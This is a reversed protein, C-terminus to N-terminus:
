GRIATKEGFQDVARQPHLAAQVPDDPLEVPSLGGSQFRRDPVDEPRTEVLEQEGVPNGGEGRHVLRHPDGPIDRRGGRPHYVGDEPIGEPLFVGDDPGIHRLCGLLRDGNEMGVRGPQDPAQKGLEIHFLGDRDAPRVVRDRRQRESHVSELCRAVLRQRCECFSPIAASGVVKEASPM